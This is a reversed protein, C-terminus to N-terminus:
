PQGAQNGVGLDDLPSLVGRGGQKGHISGHHLRMVDRVGDLSKKDGTQQQSPM